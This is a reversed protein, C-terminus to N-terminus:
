LDTQPKSASLEGLRHDGIPKRHVGLSTLTHRNLESHSLEASEVEVRYGALPSIMQHLGSPRNPAVAYFLAGRM